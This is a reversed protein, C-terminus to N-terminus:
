APQPCTASSGQQERTINGGADFSRERCTWQGDHGWLLVSACRTGYVPDVIMNASLARERALGVGTDPLHEDPAIVREGLLAFLSAELAEQDREALLGELRARGQEVKPWPTDILHNSLGHVGAALPQVRADLSGMCDLQGGAGVLLNYPLWRGVQGALGTLYDLPAATGALFDRVLRGRSATPGAPAPRRLDRVNTLAAFRGARTIGLWTGGAVRDRGGFVGPVDEWWGAPASPRAHLEDRNAALVLRYRPHAQWAFLILCM